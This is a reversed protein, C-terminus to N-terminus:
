NLEPYDLIFRQVTTSKAAKSASLEAPSVRAMRKGEQGDRSGM